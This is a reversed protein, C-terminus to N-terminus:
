WVVSHGLPFGVHRLVCCYPVSVYRVTTYCAMCDRVMVYRLTNYWVLGYRVTGHCKQLSVTRYCITGYRLTGYCITGYWLYCVTCYRLMDNRVTCDRVIVYWVTACQQTGYRTLRAIYEADVNLDKKM